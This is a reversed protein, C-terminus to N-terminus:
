KNDEQQFEKEIVGGDTDPVTDGNPENTRTERLSGLSIWDIELEDIYHLTQLSAEESAQLADSIKMLAYTADKIAANPDHYTEAFIPKNYQKSVFYISLTVGVVLLLSVAVRLMPTFVRITIYRRNRSSARISAKLRANFDSGPVASQEENVYTFLPKLHTLEEPLDNELFYDRLQQEEKPSTECNWYKQLLRYIPDSNM